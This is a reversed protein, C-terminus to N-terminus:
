VTLHPRQTVVTTRGGDGELEPNTTDFAVATAELPETVRFPTTQTGRHLHNYIENTVLLRAQVHVLRIQEVLLEALTHWEQMAILLQDKIRRRETTTATSTDSCAALFQEVLNKNAEVREIAETRLTEVSAFSPALKTRYQALVESITVEGEDMAQVDEDEDVPPRANLDALLDEEEEEEEDGGATPPPPDLDM